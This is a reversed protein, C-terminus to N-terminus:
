PNFFHIEGLNLEVLGLPVISFQLSSFTPHFLGWVRKGYIKEEQRM